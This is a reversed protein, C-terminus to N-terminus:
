KAVGAGHKSKLLEKCLQPLSETLLAGAVCDCSLTRVRIGTYFSPMTIRTRLVPVIPFASGHLERANVSWGSWIFCHYRPETPPGVEFFLTSHILPLRM